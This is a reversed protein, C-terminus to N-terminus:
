RGKEGACHLCHFKPQPKQLLIFRGKWIAILIVYLSCTEQSTSDELSIIRLFLLPKTEQLNDQTIPSVTKCLLATSVKVVCFHFETYLLRLTLPQSIAM